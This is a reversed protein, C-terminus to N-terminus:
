KMTDILFNNSICDNILNNEKLFSYRDLGDNNIVRLVKDKFYFINGAPDRYSGRELKLNNM